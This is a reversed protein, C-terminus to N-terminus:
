GRFMSTNAAEVDRYQSGANSLAAQIQDLSERVRRQTQAWSNAAEQFSSSASGRWTDQLAILRSMLASSDAEISASIRAIDSAAGSIAVTDVQFHTSM